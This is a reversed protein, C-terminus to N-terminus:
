ERALADVPDLKAANNAPLYGFVLGILTSIAFAGAMAWGSFVLEFSKIFLGFVWGAFMSLGLGLAGGILCVLVAEIMFQMMIDSQRAGVATRVGIERTRESVSVLMINMVGIGGVLLAIGGISGFLLSFILTIQGFSEMFAESTVVFFDQQGHRRTLAQVLAKEAAGPAVGDELQVTIQQVNPQRVMRTMVTTYPAWVQLQNGGIVSQLGGVEATVGVVRAPVSGMLVSKGVPNENPFLEEAANHDIVIEQAARAVSEANFWRGRAIELNQIEYFKEDVGFVVGGGSESGVRFTRGTQIV